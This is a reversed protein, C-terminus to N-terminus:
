ITLKRAKRRAARRAQQEREYLVGYTFGDSRATSALRRLREAAVVADQHAGLVDQARQYQALTRNTARPGFLPRALETAYRARKIAKRARHLEKDDDQKVGSRLQKVATREAKRTLARVEDVGADPHLPPADAIDGAEAILARYRETDIADLLAAHADSEQATLRADIRASAAGLKLDDPLAAVAAALNSRQVAADRDNGLLQQYWALEADLHAIREGEFLPKYVRLASRIRRTAVRVDHVLDAVADADASDGGRLAEAGGILAAVQERLYSGIISQAKGRRGARPRDDAHAM